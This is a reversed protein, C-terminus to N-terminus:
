HSEFYAALDAIKQGRFSQLFRNYAKGLPEDNGQNSRLAQLLIRKGDWVVEGSLQIELLKAAMEHLDITAPDRM